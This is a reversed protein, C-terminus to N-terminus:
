QNRRRRFRSALHGSLGSLGVLLLGSALCAAGVIAASRLVMGTPQHLAFGAALLTFHVSKPVRLGFGARNMESEGWVAHMMTAPALYAM